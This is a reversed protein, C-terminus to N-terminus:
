SRLAEEVLARDEDSARRHRPQWRRFALALGAAAAAVAVVPLVWVLASVGRRPPALLIAETYRDVFYARIEADSQGEKVRRLVEDRGAKAAPADSDAMSQSRCTPCRIGTAIRHAREADTPPSGDGQAGLALAGIVVVALLAWSAVRARTM